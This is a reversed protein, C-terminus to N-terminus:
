SRSGGDVRNGQRVRPRLRNVHVGFLHHPRLERLVAGVAFSGREVRVAYARTELHRFPAPHRPTNPLEIKLKVQVTLAEGSELERIRGDTQPFGSVGIQKIPRANRILRQQWEDSM